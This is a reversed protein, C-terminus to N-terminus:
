SIAISYVRGIRSPPRPIIEAHLMSGDTYRDETLWSIGKIEFNDIEYTYIGYIGWKM